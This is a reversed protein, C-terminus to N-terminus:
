ADCPPPADTLVHYDYGGDVYAALCLNGEQLLVLLGYIVIPRQKHPFV